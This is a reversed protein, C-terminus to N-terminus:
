KDDRSVFFHVRRSEKTENFSVKFSKLLKFYNWSVSNVTARVITNSNESTTVLNPLYHSDKSFNNFIPVEPHELSPMSSSWADRGSHDYRQAPENHTLSAATGMNARLGHFQWNVEQM